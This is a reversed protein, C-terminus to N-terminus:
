IDSAREYQILSYKQMTSSWSLCLSRSNTDLDLEPKAAHARELLLDACFGSSVADTCYAEFM